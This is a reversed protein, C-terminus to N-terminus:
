KSRLGSPHRSPATTTHAPMRPATVTAAACVNGSSVGCRANNTSIANETATSDNSMWPPVTPGNTRRSVGSWLVILSKRAACAAAEIEASTPQGADEGDPRNNIIMTVGDAKLAAVDAPAIQGAILTHEDLRHAM